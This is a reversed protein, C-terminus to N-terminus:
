KGTLAFQLPADIVELGGEYEMQAIVRLAEAQKSPRNASPAPGPRPHVNVRGRADWAEVMGLRGAVNSAHSPLNNHDASAKGGPWPADGRIQMAREDMSDAVWDLYTLAMHENGCEVLLTQLAKRTSPTPDDASRPHNAKWAAYLVAVSAATGNPQRPARTPEPPRPPDIPM